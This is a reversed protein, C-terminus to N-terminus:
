LYKMVGNKVEFMEFASTVQKGDTGTMDFGIAYKGDGLDSEAFATNETVKFSDMKVEKVDDGTMVYLVPTIKDGVKLKTVNKPAVGYEMEDQAGLITFEHTATDCAVSLFKEKKNLYIPIQYITYDDNMCVAEMYVPNEDISGWVGRFNDKFIGNEWDAVVDDPTGATGLCVFTEGDDYTVFLEYCVSALYKANKKGVKLVATNDDTIKLKKNDLSKINFHEKEEIKEGNLLKSVYDYGKESFGDTLNYTYFHEFAESGSAKTYNYLLEEDHSYNIFCSLGHAHSKYKGKVQYVVAEDLADLVAQSNTPLIDKAHKALDGMDAMDSYGSNKTNGGYNETKKAVRSFKGLFAGDSLAKVLAEDGFSNYATLVPDIKSLDTVSLTAEEAFDNKECEKYYSDCIKKGLEAPTITTDDALAKVWSSYHWGIGPETEESAVLYRAKDKFINAVDVTAMLCTDFGIIDYPPNEADPECTKEFAKKMEPLSLSDGEYNEDLAAGSPTGGGHDWFLVMKHDAPYNKNCFKLFDKLTDGDGMNAQKKEEIQNLEDKSYEYRGIKKESIVENQWAAAGGTQIVVKVNDPLKVQMLENLDDTAFGNESELDSGCLYWYIAWTGDSKEVTEEPAPTLEEKTEEKFLEQVFNSSGEDGCASLLMTMIMLIAIIKKKM